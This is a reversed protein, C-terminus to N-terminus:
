EFEKGSKFVAAAVAAYGCNQCCYQKETKLEMEMEMEMEMAMCVCFRLVPSSIKGAYVFM